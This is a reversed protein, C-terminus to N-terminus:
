LARRRNTIMDVIYVGLAIGLMLHIPSGAVHLVFGLVWLAMLIAFVTKLMPAEEQVRPGRLPFGPLSCPMSAPVIM